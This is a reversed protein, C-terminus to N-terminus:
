SGHSDCEGPLHRIDYYGTRRVACGASALKGTYECYERSEVNSSRPYPTDTKGIYMGTMVERFVPLCLNESREAQEQRYGYWVACVYQSTFGAFWNDVFGGTTGTKGGANVGPVMAKKGTGDQSVVRCLLRNMIDATEGSIPNSAAPAATYIVGGDSDRIEAVCYVKTTRGGTAFMQYYETMEPVSIGSRIYGLAFAGMVNGADYNMSGREASIDIGLKKELFDASKETGLRDLVRVAVTNISECVADAVSVTSGKYAGSFNAPWAVMEGSSSRIQTYPADEIVSSWNVARQEIAPSYVGLPKMCSGILHRSEADTGFTQVALLRGDIGTLVATKMANGSSASELAATLLSQAGADMNIYISLGGSYVASRADEATMKRHKKQLVEAAERAAIGLYADYVGDKCVTRFEGGDATFAAVPSNEGSLFVQSDGSDFNPIDRKFFATWVGFVAILLIIVAIVGACLASARKKSSLGKEASM